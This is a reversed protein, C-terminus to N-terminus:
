RGPRLPPHRPGGQRRDVGHRRQADRDADRRLSPALAPSQARRQGHALCGPKPRIRAFNNVCDEPRDSGTRIDPEHLRWLQRPMPKRGRARRRVWGQIEAGFHRTWIM